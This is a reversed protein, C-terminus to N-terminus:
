TASSSDWTMMEGMAVLLRREGQYPNRAHAIAMNDLMMVDSPRWPFVIELERYAALIEMMVSDEIPSGDGYCCNRPMDNEGVLEVLSERTEPDLCAPHWLQAQNFWVWTGTVPHQASAPRVCRTRLTGDPKWEFTMREERCRTEVVAPDDTQFITEWDRGVGTHYTRVYMVGQEFRRRIAPDLRAFLTRSDVIPTEGGVDAPRVCGFWIKMPWSRNFSNENHWLLKKEPPFFVPTYVTRSAAERPHEGNGDFLDPAFLRAFSDLDASSQLPIGRFLIGGHTRLQEELTAVNAEAWARVSSEGPEPEVILLSHGFPLSERHGAPRPTDIARPKLSKLSKVSRGDTATPTTMRIRGNQEGTERSDPHLAGVLAALRCGPNAAAHDLITEFDRLLHTITPEDFLDTNFELAGAVGTQSAHVFLTLDFPTARRAGSAPRVSLGTMRWGPKSSAAWPSAVVKVQFLPSGRGARRPNLVQVLQEFPLDKHAIADNLTHQTRQVIEEFAPNGSLDTRLVVQNVFCGILPELEVRDRASVDTGVVIVDQGSWDHMLVQFAALVWAFSPQRPSATTQPMSAELPAATPLPLQCTFRREGRPNTASLRPRAGRLTLQELPARLQGRWYALQADLGGSSLREAQWAAYDAYQLPLAPLPSPTGNTRADYLASLERAFLGISWGDFVIHHTTLLLVHREDECALLHGRLLGDVALRFPVTVETEAVADVRAKQEEDQRGRLDTFAFTFPEAPEIVQEPEGDKVVFRTRLVDHRAMVESLAEALASRDLSGTLRLRISMNYAASREDLSQGFWIGRQVPSLPIRDRSLRPISSSRPQQARSASLVDLRALLAARQEPTLAALQERYRPARDQM